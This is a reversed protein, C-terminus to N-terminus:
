ELPFNNLIPSLSSFFVRPFYKRKKGIFLFVGSGKEYCTVNEKKYTKKGFLSRITFTDKEITLKLFVYYFIVLYSLFSVGMIVFFVIETTLPAKEGDIEIFHTVLGFTLGIVFLFFFLGAFVKSIVNSKVEEKM